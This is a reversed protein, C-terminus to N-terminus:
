DEEEQTDIQNIRWQQVLEPPISQFIDEFPKGILQHAQHLLLAVPSSPENTEFWQQAQLILQRAAMRGQINNGSSFTPETTKPESGNSTSNQLEEHHDNSGSQYLGHKILIGPPEAAFWQLLKILSELNAGDEPMQENITKQLQLLLEHSATLAHYSEDNGDKLANMQQVIRAIPIADSARGNTIAYDIEKITVRTAPTKGLTINRIEKILGEPDILSNLASSRYMEDREGDQELRPFVDEPYRTLVEQLLQLGSLLGVAGKKYLQARLWLIMLRVDKTRTLLQEVDELVEGWAINTTESVFDGYQVSDKPEVKALLLLYESEYELNSGCPEQDSIPELLTQYKSTLTNM